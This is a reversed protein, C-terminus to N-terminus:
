RGHNKQRGNSCRRSLRFLAPNLLQAAVVPEAVPHVAVALAAVAAAGPLRHLVQLRYSTQRPDKRVSAVARGSARFILSAM